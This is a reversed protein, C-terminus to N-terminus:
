SYNPYCSLEESIDNYLHIMRNQELVAENLEDGKETLADFARQAKDYQDPPLTKGDYRMYENLYQDYQEKLISIKADIIKIEGSLREQQVMLPYQGVYLGDLRAPIDYGLTDYPEQPDTESWMLHDKSPHHELGLVHGIEHMITNTIMNEDMQVYNDRCDNGGLSIDLICYFPEGSPLLDCTALGSHSMPTHKPWRIVMDPDDSEVFTIEPNSAEWRKMADNLAFDIIHPNPVDPIDGASYYFTKEPALNRNIIKRLASTLSEQDPESPIETPADEEYVDHDDAPPEAITINDVTPEAVEVTPEHVTMNDQEAVTINELVPKSPIVDVGGLTRRIDNIKEMAPVMEVVSEPVGALLVWVAFVVYVSLLLLYTRKDSAKKRTHNRVGDYRGDLYRDQGDDYGM